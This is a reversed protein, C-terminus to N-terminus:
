VHQAQEKTKVETNNSSRDRFQLPNPQEASYLVIAVSAAPKLDTCSFKTLIPFVKCTRVFTLFLCTAVKLIQIRFHREERLSSTRQNYPYENQLRM